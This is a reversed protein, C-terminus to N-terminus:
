ALGAPRRSGGSSASSAAAPTWSSRSARTSRTANPASRSTCSPKTSRTQFENGCSCRVTALVYEPHIDPKMRFRPYCCGNRPWTAVRSSLAVRDQGRCRAGQRGPAGGRRGGRRAGSRAERARLPGSARSSTTRPSRSSEVGPEHCVALCHRGRDAREPRRRDLGARRSRGAAALAVRLATLGEPEVGVVRAGPRRGGGGLRPRRRGRRRRDGDVRPTRSSRAAWAARAKSSSRTTSRISSCAGTAARLEELRRVGGPRPPRSTSQRATAARPAAKLESAGQWMVVLCDIGKSACLRHSRPPARKGGLRHDRRAGEGRPFRDRGEGAIGEAQLARRRSSSPRSSRRAASVRGSPRRGCSRRECSRHTVDLTYEPGDGGEPPTLRGGKASIAGCQVCNSATVEVDVVNRGPTADGTIEYVQAPCMHVWAEAVERRSRATSASTARRTTAPRTGPSTSARSSTSSSSGTPSRTRRPRPGRRLGAGRRRARAEPRAAPAQRAHEAGRRGARVACSGTAQFAPRM